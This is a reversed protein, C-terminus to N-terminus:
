GSAAAYYLPTKGHSDAANILASQTEADGRKKVQSAAAGLISAQGSEAAIHFINQKAADTVVGPNAGLHLLRLCLDANASAALLLPTFGKNDPVDFDDLSFQQVVDHFIFM